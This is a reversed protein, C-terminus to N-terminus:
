FEKFLGMWHRNAIRLLTQIYAFELSNEDYLDDPDELSEFLQENQM